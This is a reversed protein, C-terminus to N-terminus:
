FGGKPDLTSGRFAGGTGTVLVEWGMLGDKAILNSGTREEVFTDTDHSRTEKLSMGIELVRPLLTRGDFGALPDFTLTYSECVFPVNEYLAGFHLRVVPPGFEPHNVNNMVTSRISSIYEIVTDIIVRREHAADSNISHIPSNFRLANHLQKDRGELIDEYLLDYDIATGMMRQTGRGIYEFEPGLQGTSAYSRQLNGITHGIIQTEKDKKSLTLSNLRYQKKSSYLHPLTIKFKLDIKRSNAGLYGFSNSARGIPSYTSLRAEKSEQIMPNEFFPITKTHIEDGEFYNLVIKGVWDSRGLTPSIKDIM